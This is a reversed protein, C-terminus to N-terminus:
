APAAHEVPTVTSFLGLAIYKQCVFEAYRPSFYHGVSFVRGGRLIKEERGPLLTRVAEVQRESQPVILVEHLSLGADEGTIFQRLM